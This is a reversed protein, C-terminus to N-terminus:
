AGRRALINGHDLGSVCCSALRRGVERAMLGKRQSLHPELLGELLGNVAAEYLLGGEGLLRRDRGEPDALVHDSGDAMPRKGAPDHEFHALSEADTTEGHLDQLITTEVGVGLVGCGSPERMPLEGAAAVAGGCPMPQKVVHRRGCEGALLEFLRQRSVGPFKVRLM